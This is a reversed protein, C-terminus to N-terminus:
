YGALRISSHTRRQINPSTGPVGRVLIYEVTRAAVVTPNWEDWRRPLKSAKDFGDCFKRANRAQHGSIRGNWGLKRMVHFYLLM